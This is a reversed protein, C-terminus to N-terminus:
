AELGEELWPVEVVMQWLCLEAAKWMQWEVLSDLSCSPEAAAAVVACTMVQQTVETAKGEWPEDPPEHLLQLQRLRVHLQAPNQLKGPALCAVGVKMALSAVMSSSPGAEM